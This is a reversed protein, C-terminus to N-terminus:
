HIFQLAITINRVRAEGREVKVERSVEGNWRVTENERWYLNIILRRELEPVGIKEMVEALKDHKEGDFAKHYDPFCLYLKKGKM